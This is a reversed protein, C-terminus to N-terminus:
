EYPYSYTDLYDRNEVLLEECDDCMMDYRGYDICQDNMVCEYICDQDPDTGVVGFMHGMEHRGVKWSNGYTTLFIISYPNQIYAAGTVGVSERPFGSFAMMMDRSGVGYNDRAENLHVEYDTSTSTLSKTSAYGTLAISGWVEFKESIEDIIFEAADLGGIGTSNLDAVWENDCVCNVTYSVSASYISAREPENAKALVAVKYSELIEDKTLSMENSQIPTPSINRRSTSIDSALSNISLASLMCVSLIISIFKKM